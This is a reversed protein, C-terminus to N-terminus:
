LTQARRESSRAELQRGMVTRVHDAVRNALLRHALANPHSDLKNIALEKYSHGAFVEVGASWV